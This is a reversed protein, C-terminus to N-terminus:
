KQPVPPTDTPGQGMINYVRRITVPGQLSSNELRSVVTLEKGDDSVRFSETLKTGHDLKTEAVLTNGQWDTKTSSIKKGNDDKDDHKKGDLYYTQAHASDDTVVLQGSKQDIQLLKPTQGLRDWDEASVTSGRNGQQGGRRGMGGRGMGGGGPWGGGGGPYGGGGPWGGGGGPSGGGGGGGPYGGGGNSTTRQNSQADTIKQQADDSQDKNFQWRGSLKPQGDGARVVGPLAIALLIVVGCILSILAFNYIKQM